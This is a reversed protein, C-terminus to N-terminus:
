AARAVDLGDRFRKADGAGLVRHMRRGESIFLVTPISRIGEKMVTEDCRDVDVKLFKVDPHDKELQELQTRVQICPGCWDAFFYVVTIGKSSAEELEKDRLEVM